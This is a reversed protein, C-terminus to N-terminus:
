RRFCSVRKMEEVWDPSEKLIREINVEGPGEFGVAKMTNLYTPSFKYWAAGIVLARQWAHPLADGAGPRGARWRQVRLDFASVPQAGPHVCRHDDAM